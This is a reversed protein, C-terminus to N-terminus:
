LPLVVVTIILFKVVALVDAQTLSRAFQRLQLKFTLLITLVMALATALVIEGRWCLAGLLFVFLLSVDTTIGAHGKNLRATYTLINMLGIILFGAIIPLVSEWYESFWALVSGLLSTIAFTRVGSGGVTNESDHSFDQERQLGVILGLSLAVAFRWYQQLEEM